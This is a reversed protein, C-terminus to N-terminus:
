PRLRRSAHPNGGLALALERPVEHAMTDWMRDVMEAARALEEESRGAARQAVLGAAVVRLGVLAAGIALDLPAAGAVRAQRVREGTDDLLQGVIPAVLEEYTQRAVGRHRIVLTQVASRAAQTGLRRIQLRLGALWAERRRGVTPPWGGTRAAAPDTGPDWSPAGGGPRRAGQGGPGDAPPTTPWGAPRGPSGAPAPETTGDAETRRALTADYARRRGPDSLVRWAENVQVMDLGDTSRPGAVDPHLQRALRRYAARLTPVDADRAVGLREYL